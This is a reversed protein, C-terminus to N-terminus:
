VDYSQRRCRDDTMEADRFSHARREGVLRCVRGEISEADSCPDEPIATHWRYVLNFNFTLHNGTGGCAFM